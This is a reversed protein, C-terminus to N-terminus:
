FIRTNPCRYRVCRAKRRHGKQDVCFFEVDFDKVATTGTDVETNFQALQQQFLAYSEPDSEGLWEKDFAIAYVLFFSKNLLANMMKVYPDISALIKSTMAVILVAVRIYAHQFQLPVDHGFEKNAIQYLFKVLGEVEGAMFPRPPLGHIRKSFEDLEVLLIRTFLGREDLLGVMDNWAKAQPNRSLRPSYEHLFFYELATKDHITALLCKVLNLEIAAQLPEEVSHRIGLMTTRKVISSALIAINKAQERSPDLRVVFEGERIENIAGEGGDVWVIDVARPLITKGFHHGKRARNLRGKIDNSIYRKEAHTMGSIQYAAKFIRARWSAATEEDVVLVLVVCFLVFAVGWSGHAAIFEMIKLLLQM